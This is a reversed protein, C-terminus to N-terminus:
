RDSAHIDELAARKLYEWYHAYEQPSDVDDTYDEPDLLFRDEYKYEDHEFGCILRYLAWLKPPYNIHAGRRSMELCHSAVCDHYDAAMVFGFLENAAKDIVPNGGSRGLFQIPETNEVLLGLAKYSFVVDGLLILTRHYDWLLETAMLGALLPQPEDLARKPMWGVVGSGAWLIEPGVVLIESHVLGLEILMRITRGIIEEDGDVTIQHKLFSSPEGAETTAHWRDGAGNALLIARM